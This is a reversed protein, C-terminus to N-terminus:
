PKDMHCTNTQKREESLKANYLQTCKTQKNM